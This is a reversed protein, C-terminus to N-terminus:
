KDDGISLGYWEKFSQARIARVFELFADPKGAFETWCYGDDDVEEEVFHKKVLELIEADTM